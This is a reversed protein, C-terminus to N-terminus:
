SSGSPLLPPLRRGLAVPLPYLVAGRLRQWGIGLLLVTVGLILLTSFFVMTRDTRAAGSATIAYGIVIGLYSLGSVILARRDIVIAVVTLIGVIGIVTAATAMTMDLGRAVPMPSIMAVLSHVILPAALLHLWFACDAYRTARMRDGLDYTMAAAFVALGCVLYIAPQVSPVTPFLLYGLLIQAAAVLSASVLLLTFPLGFRMYFLSMTFATVVSKVLIAALDLQQFPGVFRRIAVPPPAFGTYEAILKWDIVVSAFVFFAFFSALVIGPLVLRMRRVLLEALAWILAAAILNGVVGSGAFFGLGSGFLLIGVAFFIDNFGRMFHFREEDARAAVEHTRREAAFVRLADAQTHSVIGKAVAADLDADDIM